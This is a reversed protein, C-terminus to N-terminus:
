IAPRFLSGLTADLFATWLGTMYMFGFLIIIIGIIKYMLRSGGAGLYRNAWDMSGFFDYFTKTKIVLLSGIVILLLSILIRTLM